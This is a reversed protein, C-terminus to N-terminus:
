RPQPADSRGTVGGLLSATAAPDQVEIILKKYHEHALSVIVTKEPDRVDWFVLGGHSFFTGAALVGPLNTGM